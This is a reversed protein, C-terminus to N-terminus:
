QNCILAGGIVRDDDYLVASQGAAVAWVPDKLYIVVKNKEIIVEKVTVAKQRYRVQCYLSDLKVKSNLIDITSQIDHMEPSQGTYTFQDIDISATSLHIDDHKDTVYINKEINDKAIVFCPAVDGGGRIQKYQRNDICEGIREGITYFALGNHKGVEEALMMRESIKQGAEYRPLLLVKGEEKDIHEFLFKKVDLHGIFCIGQSDKKESTPLKYKRALERVATKQMNGLPMLSSELQWKDLAYLFYSQDKNQDVGRWLKGDEIRAYHGTAIQEAGMDKAAELFAKFKIEKNCMIDPNPTRGAQYEQLFYDLVREKYEREFNISRFPIGLHDCVAQADAQDQEWACDSIGQITQPSWNKMFMGSVSYGQEQLLAAAVSSDVGGSMAVVINHSM